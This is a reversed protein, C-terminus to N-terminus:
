PLNYLLKNLIDSHKQYQKNSEKLSERLSQNEKIEPVIIQSFYKQITPIIDRYQEDM